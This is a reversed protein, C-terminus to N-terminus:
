VQRAWLSVRHCLLRTGSNAGPVEKVAPIVSLGQADSKGSRSTIPIVNHALRVNSLGM